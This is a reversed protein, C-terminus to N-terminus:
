GMGWGLRASRPLYRAAAQEFAQQAAAAGVGTLSYHRRRPRGAASPDIQEWEGVLWGAEELRDLIPYLTGSSIGAERAIELGYARGPARDVLVRLVALTSQTIKPGDMSPLRCLTADHALTATRM